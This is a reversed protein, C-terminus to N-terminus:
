NDTSTQLMREANRLYQRRYGAFDQPVQAERFCDVVQRVEEEISPVSPRRKWLQKVRSFVMEILNLEYCATVNDLLLSGISSRRVQASRHYTANDLLVVVRDPLGECKLAETLFHVLAEGDMAAESIQIAILRTQSCLAICTLQEKSTVREKFGSFPQDKPRWCKNPTHNYPFYVEDLYLLTEDDRAFAPLCVRLVRTIEAPALGRPRPTHRLKRYRWGRQKLVRAIYRKSVSPMQQKVQTASFYTGQPSTMIQMIQDATGPPKTHNYRYEPISGTLQHRIELKRATSKHCRARLALSAIEAGAGAEIAARLAQRQRNVQDVRSLRPRRTRRAPQNAVAQNAQMRNEAELLDKAMDKLAQEDLHETPLFPRVPLMANSEVTRVSMQTSQRQDGDIFIVPTWKKPAEAEPQKKKGPSASRRGKSATSQGRKGLSTRPEDAEDSSQPEGQDYIRRGDM